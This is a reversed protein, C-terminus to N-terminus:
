HGRAKTAAELFVSFEGISAGSNDADDSEVKMDAAGMRVFKRANPLLSRREDGKRQATTATGADIPPLSLSTDGMASARRLAKPVTSTQRGAGFGLLGLGPRASAEKSALSPLELITDPQEMKDGETPHEEQSTL